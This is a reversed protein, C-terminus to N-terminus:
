NGTVTGGLDSGWGMDSFSGNNGSDGGLSGGWGLDEFQGDNGSDGGLDGGDDMDEFQGKSAGLLRSGGDSLHFFSLAPPVYARRVNETKNENIIM